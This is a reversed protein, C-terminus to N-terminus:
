HAIILKRTTSFGAADFRVFYLGDAVNAMDIQANTLKGSNVVVGQLNFITYSVPKHGFDAANAVFVTNTAPNPYLYINNTRPGAVPENIGLPNITADDGVVPRMMISGVLPSQQWSSNLVSFYTADSHDTNKDFGINMTYDQDQYWGVFFNGVPLQFASDITYTVFENLSDSYIPFLARREYILDGPEDPNSASPAWVRLYFERTSVDYVSKVFHFHVGRLTDPFNLAFRVACGGGGPASLAFAAEATGDDYAYYDSFIQRFRTTDNSTKVDVGDVSRFVHTIDFFTDTPLPAPFGCNLLTPFSQIADPNYSNQYVPELPAQQSLLTENCGPNYEGKYEYSCTKDMDWINTQTLRVKGFYESTIYQNYPMHQYRQLMSPAKYVFGVDNFTTDNKDRGKDLYIYDINWHDFIGNLSAVNRFQFKFFENMYATDTIPIMVLKFTDLPSGEVEWVKVYQAISNNYFWLSLFDNADPAEGYGQPQYLFSFYLSDAPTLTDLSIFRSTLIDANGTIIGPQFQYPQGNKDLGDLTLCGITPPGIAFDPNVYTSSDTFRKTSPYGYMIDSFDEIFPLTPVTDATKEQKNPEGKYKVLYPNEVLPFLKPQAMALLPLLLLIYLLLHKKIM